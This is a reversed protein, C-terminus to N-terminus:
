RVATGSIAERGNNLFLCIFPLPPRYISKNQVYSNFWFGTLKARASTDPMKKGSPIRIILM